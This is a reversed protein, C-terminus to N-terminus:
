SHVKVSGGILGYSPLSVMVLGVVHGEGFAIELKLYVGVSRLLNDM